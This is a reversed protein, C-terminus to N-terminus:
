SRVDVGAALWGLWCRTSCRWAQSAVLRSGWASNSVLRVTGGRNASRKWVKGAALAELSAVIALPAMPAIALVMSGTSPVIQLAGPSTFTSFLNRFRDRPSTDAEHTKLNSSVMLVLSSCSPRMTLNREFLLRMASVTLRVANGAICLRGYGSRLTRRGLHVKGNYKRLRTPARPKVYSTRPRTTPQQALV